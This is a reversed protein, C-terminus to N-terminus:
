VAGGARRFEFLRAHAPNNIAFLRALYPTHHDNLKWEGGKESVASNHRLVEIITRASYHQRVKAAKIAEQEFAEYVHANEDLYTLFESPFLHPLINM